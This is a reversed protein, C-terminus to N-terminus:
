AVARPRAARAAVRVAHAPRSAAAAGHRNVGVIVVAVLELAVSVVGWPELWNGVDDSIQPFAVLRTAAYAVVAAGCLMGVSGVAWNAPCLWLLAGLATAIVAFVVFLVGLYPAERLHEPAVPLHALGAAVSVAALTRM